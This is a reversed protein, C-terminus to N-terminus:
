WAVMQSLHFAIDFSFRNLQIAKLKTASHTAFSMTASRAVLFTMTEM